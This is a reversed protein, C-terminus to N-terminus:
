ILSVLVNLKYIRIFLHQIDTCMDSLSMLFHLQYLFYFTRNSEVVTGLFYFSRMLVFVSGKSLIERNQECSSSFITYITFYLKKMECIVTAYQSLIMNHIFMYTVISKINMRLKFKMSLAKKFVKCNTNCYVFLNNTQILNVSLCLCMRM